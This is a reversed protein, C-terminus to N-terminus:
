QIIKMTIDFTFQQAEDGSAEQSVRELRVDSFLGAQRLNNMLHSISEETRSLGLIRLVHENDISMGTLALEEPLSKSIESVVPNMDRHVSLVEGLVTLRKQTQRFQQELPAFFTIVGRKQEVDQQLASIDQDLSFRYVFASIVVLETVIVIWRGISLSWMSVKGLTTLRFDPQSLLNISAKRPM